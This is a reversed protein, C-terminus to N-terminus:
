ENFKEGGKKFEKLQQVYHSILDSIDAKPELNIIQEELLVGTKIDITHKVLM